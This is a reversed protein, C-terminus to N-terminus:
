QGLSKAINDYITQAAARNLDTDAYGVTVRLTTHKDSVKDAVVTVERGDSMAAKVISRQFDINAPGPTLKLDKVAKMAADHVQQLPVDIGRKVTAMCAALGLLGAACGLKVITNMGRM